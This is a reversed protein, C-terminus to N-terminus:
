SEDENLNDVYPVLDDNQMMDYEDENRGEEKGEKTRETKGQHFTAWPNVLWQLVHLRHRVVYHDVYPQMKAM